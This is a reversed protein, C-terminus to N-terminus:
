EEYYGCRAASNPRCEAPTAVCVPGQENVLVRTTKSEDEYLCLYPTSEPCCFGDEYYCACRKTPAEGCAALAILLLLTRKM